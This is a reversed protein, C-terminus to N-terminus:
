VAGGAVLFIAGGHAVVSSILGFQAHLFAAIMGEWLCFALLVWGADTTATALSVHAFAFAVGSTLAARTLTVGPLNELSGQLFGRFLLEEYFNGIMSFCLILLGPSVM